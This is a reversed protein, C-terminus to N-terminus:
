QGLKQCLFCPEKKAREDAAGQGVNQDGRHEGRQLVSADAEVRQDKEQSPVGPRLGAYVEAPMFDEDEDEGRRSGSESPSAIGEGEQSDGDGFAHSLMQDAEEDDELIAHFGKFRKYKQARRSREYRERKFRFRPQGNRSRKQFLYQDDHPLEPESTRHPFVEKELLHVVKLEDNLGGATTKVFAEDQRTLQAADVLRGLYFKSAM